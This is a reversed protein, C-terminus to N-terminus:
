SCQLSNPSAHMRVLLSPLCSAHMLLMSVITSFPFMPQKVVCFPLFIYVIEHYFLLIVIWKLMYIFFGNPRVTKSYSGSGWFNETHRVMKQNIMCFVQNIMCFVSQDYLFVSQDYLFSISQNIKNCQDWTYNDYIVHNITAEM